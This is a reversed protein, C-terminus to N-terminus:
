SGAPDDHDHEDLLRRRAGLYRAATLFGTHAVM